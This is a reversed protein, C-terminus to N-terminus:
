AGVKTARVFLKVGDDDGSEDGSSYYGRNLLNGVVFYTRQDAAMGPLKCAVTGANTCPAPDGVFTGPQLTGVLWDSALLQSGRDDDNSRTVAGPGTALIDRTACFEQPIGTDSELATLTVTVSNRPDDGSWGFDCNGLHIPYYLGIRLQWNRWYRHRSFSSPNQWAFTVRVKNQYTAAVNIRAFKVGRQRFWGGNSSTVTDRLDEVEAVKGDPSAGPLVSVQAASEGTSALFSVGSWSLVGVLGLALAWRGRRATRRGRAPAREVPTKGASCALRTEM